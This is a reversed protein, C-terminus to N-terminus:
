DDLYALAEAKLLDWDIGGVFPRENARLWVQFAQAAMEEFAAEQAPVEKNIAMGWLVPCQRELLKECLFLHAFDHEFCYRKLDDGYGCRHSVIHYHPLEPHPWAPVILGSNLTTVCGFDTEEIKAFRLHIQRVSTKSGQMIVRRKGALHRHRSGVGVYDSRLDNAERRRWCSMPMHAESMVTLLDPAFSIAAVIAGILLM